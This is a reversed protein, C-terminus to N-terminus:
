IDIGSYLNRRKVRNYHPIDRLWRHPDSGILYSTGGPAADAAEWRSARSAGEFVLAVRSAPSDAVLGTDTLAITANRVSALYRVEPGAQGRNPEFHFAVPAAAWARTAALLGLALFRIM